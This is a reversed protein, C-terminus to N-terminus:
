YLSKTMEGLRHKEMRFQSELFTKYRKYYRVAAKPPNDTLLFTKKDMKENIANQKAVVEIEDLATPYEELEITGQNLFESLSGVYVTQKKPKYGLLTFDLLYNGAVVNSFSFQGQENTVTVAIITNTKTTLTVNAFALNIKTEKSKIIGYLTIGKQQAFSNSTCISLLLTILAIVKIKM